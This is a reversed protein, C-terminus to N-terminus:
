QATPPSQPRPPADVSPPTPPQQEPEALFGPRTHPLPAITYVGASRDYDMIVAQDGRRLQHESRCTVQLILDEGSPRDHRATGFKADVTSSTVEVVKGVLDDAVHVGRLSFVKALPAVAAGTAIFAGVLAAALAVLGFLWWSWGPVHPRVFTTAALCVMWGFMVYLSAIITLPVQGVRLFELIANPNHGAHADHDADHGGVDHEGFHLLDLDLAGVIVLLWYLMAVGLVVSFIATPFSFLATLFADM